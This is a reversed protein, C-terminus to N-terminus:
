GEPIEARIEPDVGKKWNAYNETQAWADVFPQGFDRCANVAAASRTRRFRTM